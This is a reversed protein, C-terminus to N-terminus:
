RTTRPRRQDRTGRMPCFPKLCLTKTISAAAARILAREEAAQEYDSLPQMVAVGRGRSTLLAPRQAEAAQEVVRGPKVELDTLPVVDESFKASM